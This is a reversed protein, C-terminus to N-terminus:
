GDRILKPFIDSRGDSVPTEFMVFLLIDAELRLMQETAIRSTVLSALASSRDFHSSKAAQVADGALTQCFMSHSDM